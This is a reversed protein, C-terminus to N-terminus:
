AFIRRFTACLREAEKRSPERYMADCPATFGSPRSASGRLMKDINPDTKRAEAISKETGLISHYKVMGKEEMERPLCGPGECRTINHNGTMVDYFKVKGGSYRDKSIAFKVAEICDLKEVKNTAWRYAAHDGGTGAFTAILPDCGDKWFKQLISHGYADELQKSQNNVILIALNRKEPLGNKDKPRPRKHIFNKWDAIVEANGAFMFTYNDVIEIKKFGADDVYLDFYFDDNSVTWRSDCAVKNHVSDYFNTTMQLEEEKIHLIAACDLSRKRGM